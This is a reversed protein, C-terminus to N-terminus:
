RGGVLRGLGKDVMVAVRDGKFAPLFKATFAAARTAEELHDGEPIPLAVSRMGAKRLMEGAATLAEGLHVPDLKQARGVGVVFIRALTLRGEAPLLLQDDKKGTFFGQLLLRSLAGCLRWDVFGALGELPREDEGLFLCLADVGELADLAELGVEHAEVQTM